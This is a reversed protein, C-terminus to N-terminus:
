SILLQKASLSFLHLTSLLGDEQLHSLFSSFVGEPQITVWRALLRGILQREEKSYGPWDKQVLKYFHDRLLYSGDRPNVKAM